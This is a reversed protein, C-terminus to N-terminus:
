YYQPYQSVPYQELTQRYTDLMVKTEPTDADQKGDRILGKMVAGCHIISRITLDEVTLGLEEMFEPCIHGYTPCSRPDDDIFPMGEIDREPDRDYEYPCEGTKDCPLLDGRKRFLRKFFSAM